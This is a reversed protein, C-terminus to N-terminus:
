IGIIIPIYLTLVVSAVAFIISLILLPTYKKIYKFLEKLTSKKIKQKKM